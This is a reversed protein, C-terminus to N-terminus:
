MNIVINNSTLSVLVIINISHHLLHATDNLNLHLLSGFKFEVCLTALM